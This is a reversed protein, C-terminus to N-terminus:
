TVTADYVCYVCVRYYCLLKHNLMYSPLMCCLVNVHHLYVSYIIYWICVRVSGCTSLAEVVHLDIRRLRCSVVPHCQCFQQFRRFECILISTYPADNIVCLYSLKDDDADIFYANCRPRLGLNQSQHANVINHLVVPSTRIHRTGLRRITVIIGIIARFICSPLISTPTM